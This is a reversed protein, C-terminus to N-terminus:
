ICSKRKNCNCDIYSDCYSSSYWYNYIFYIYIHNSIVNMQSKTILSNYKNSDGSVDVENIISNFASPVTSFIMLSFIIIFYSKIRKDM